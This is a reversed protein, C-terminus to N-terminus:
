SLHSMKLTKETCVGFFIGHFRELPCSGRPRWTRARSRSGTQSPVAHGPALGPALGLVSHCLIDGLRSPVGPVSHCHHTSWNIWSSQTLSSGMASALGVQRVVSEGLVVQTRPASGGPSEWSVAPVAPVALDCPSHPHQPRDSLFPFLFWSLPLNLLPPFPFSPSFLSASPLSSPASPSLPTRPASFDSPIHDPTVPCCPRHHPDSPSVPPCLPSSCSKDLSPLLVGSTGPSGSPCHASFPM